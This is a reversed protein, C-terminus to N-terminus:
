ERHPLQGGAANATQLGRSQWLPGGDRGARLFALLLKPLLFSERVPQGFKKAIPLCPPLMRAVRVLGCCNAATFFFAGLASYRSSARATTRRRSRFFYPLPIMATTEAPVLSM